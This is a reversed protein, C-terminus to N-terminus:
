PLQRQLMAVFALADDTLVRSAGPVDCLLVPKPAAPAPVLDLSMQTVKRNAVGTPSHPAQETQLTLITM